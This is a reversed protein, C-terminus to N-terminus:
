RMGLNGLEYQILTLAAAAAAESRLTYDGLSILTAGSAMASDLEAQSFDGEPGLAILIEYGTGLSQSLATHPGQISAILRTGEVQSLAADLDGALAFEPLWLRGTQKCTEIALRPWKEQIRPARESHDAKFFIFRSVGLETGRIIISGISKERNLWAQALTVPREPRVEERRTEVSVTVGSRGAEAIPGRAERGAGDFLAVADGVRVRAVHLAHHAEHQPLSVLDDSLSEVPVHFRHLHPM